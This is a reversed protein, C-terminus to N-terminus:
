MIFMLCFFFLFLRFPIFFANRTELHSTMMFIVRLIITRFSIFSFLFFYYRLETQQQVIYLINFKLIDEYVIYIYKSYIGYLMYWAVDYKQFYNQIGNWIISYRFDLANFHKGNLCRCAKAKHQQQLLSYKGNKGLFHIFADVM